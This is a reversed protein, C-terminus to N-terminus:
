MKVVIGICASGYNESIRRRRLDELENIYRVAMGLSSYRDKHQTAKAVDYCVTGNATPRPVINGMEVQLADAEVFIAKEQPTYKRKVVDEGDEDKRSVTNGIVFRSAIPLELSQQELAITVATVMQRNVNNDAVCPRLLPIAGHITTHETDLVLPPYEKNTEPDTWPQSLFQPFADGLGRHDFVVKTTNPFKVQLRRVENAQYDLRKGHYSRMYVLKKLYNGNELEILKIITIVANDAGKASSTALDVGMVYDASSKIPMATEVETLKRCKETLDYPFTSGTEAGIFMSGYEMAFKSEPMKRKESEFFEATSIGARVAARYDLAVAFSSLDGHAMARLTDVFVDYFYNSKLCASTISVMKSPYDSIGLQICCSRTENRLPRLIADLDDQKVEPAEDIVVIKARSGRMSSIAMSEIRSGNKLTCVGKTSSIQVPAHNNADVERLVNENRIFYQDIKRLVLNAQQATGSAVIISSGPYLVGMALCCIATIWTKGFGRSQVFQLTDCNGFCRAQIRQVDKLVIQFYEEIFVDLHKRWYDIQQVWLDINRIDRLQAAM